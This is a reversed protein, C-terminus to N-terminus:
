PQPNWGAGDDYASFIKARDAFEEEYETPTLTYGRTWGSVDLASGDLNMSNYQRWGSIASPVAPNAVPNDSWGAPRIHTDMKTNVFVINDYYTASGGSRALWVTGDDFEVGTPGAGRTLESNLFVFGKDEPNVTRAQLIIGGNNIGSSRGISRIESEEFLAVRNNGWIYDVNGAILTQYFWSYGKVQVTDQESFFSAQKAILRGQSNFYLAEAQAGEGILTTNRLTLNELTVLDSNAILFVNRGDSGGNLKESNRYQLIVGDRSEGRLTVNDKDRLLLLEEYVGNQINITVATDRAHNEMVFNLAGQVSGFDSTAGNKGVSLSTTDAAPPAAKTTFSWGAAKGIGAFPQGALEADPFVSEGIAVYYTTDYELKDSHLAITVTNDVRQIPLTNLTRLATGTGITDEEYGLKITDVLSDDSAKFIRIAGVSGLTPTTDFTLHLLTDVHVDSSGPAPFALCGLDYSATPQVFEPAITATIQRTLSSDSGSTITVIATGEGVPNLLVRNGDVTIAVVSSDSSVVTFEDADGNPAVATVDVVYPDDNVEAGYTNMAPSITLQAPQDSANGVKIDDIEFSKNATWLGILGPTTFEYDVISNILEGDLYVTLVNGSLQLRLTYWVGDTGDRQGQELPRKVQVPRSLTGSVMKAIEVQTSSTSNQVNLAGAYWNNGDQYRALLYIQKNSTTGNQRPRIRAEVFYDASTVGTFEAPNVLAIVGGSSNATYRLVNNGNDNLIDFTGDPVLSNETVPFTNWKGMGAAFDDCFYLGSDCVYVPAEAPPTRPPEGDLLSRSLPSVNAFDPASTSCQDGESSSSESSSSSQSSLPASSSHSSAPLSSEVSSASSESSSFSPQSSSAASSLSSSSRSSSSGGCAILASSLLLVSLLPYNM